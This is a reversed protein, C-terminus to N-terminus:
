ARAQIELTAMAPDPSLRIISYVKGRAIVSDSTLPMTDITPLLIVIKVDNAEILTQARELTSFDAVFGKAPYNTTVEEGSGPEWPVGGVIETRRVTIDFPVNADILAESIVQALEGELISM